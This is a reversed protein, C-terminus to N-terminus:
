EGGVLGRNVPHPLLSVARLKAAPWCRAVRRWCPKSWGHALPMSENNSGSSIRLWSASRAGQPSYPRESVSPTTDSSLLTNRFTSLVVM